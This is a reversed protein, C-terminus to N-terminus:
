PETLPKPLRRSQCSGAAPVPACSSEQGICVNDDNVWGATQHNVAQLCPTWLTSVMPSPAEAGGRGGLVGGRSSSRM